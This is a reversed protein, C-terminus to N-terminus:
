VVLLLLTLDREEKLYLRREYHTWSLWGRGRRVTESKWRNQKAWTSEWFEPGLHERACKIFHGAQNSFSYNNDSDLNLNWTLVLSFGHVKKLRYRYDLTKLSYRPTM